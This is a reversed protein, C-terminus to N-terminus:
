RIGGYCSVLVAAVVLVLALMVLREHVRFMPPTTREQYTLGSTMRVAKAYAERRQNALPMAADLRARQHVLTFARRQRRTM